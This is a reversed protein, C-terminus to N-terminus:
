FMWVQKQFSIQTAPYRVEDAHTYFISWFSQCLNHSKNFYPFSLIFHLNIFCIVIDSIYFPIDRPSNERSPPTTPHQDWVAIDIGGYIETILPIINSLYSLNRGAKTKLQSIIHRKLNVYFVVSVSLFTKFIKLLNSNLSLTSSVHLDISFRWVNDGIGAAIWYSRLSSCPLRQNWM